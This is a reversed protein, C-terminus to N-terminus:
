KYNAMVDFCYLKSIFFGYVPSLHIFNIEGVVHKWDMIGSTLIFLVTGRFYLGIGYWNLPSHLPFWLKVSASWSHLFENKKEWERREGVLTQFECERTSISTGAWWKSKTFYIPKVLKLNKNPHMTLLGICCM